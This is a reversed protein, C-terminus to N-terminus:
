EKATDILTGWEYLCALSPNRGKLQLGGVGGRFAEPVDLGIALKLYFASAFAGADVEDLTDSMLVTYRVLGSIEAAASASNCSSFVACEIASAFRPLASLINAISLRDHAGEAEVVIEGARSGHGSFHFFRPNHQIAAATLRDSTLAPEAHLELLCKERLSDLATRVKQFERDAGIGRNPLLPDAWSFLLVDRHTPRSRLTSRKAALRGELVEQLGDRFSILFGGGHARELALVRDLVRAEPDVGSASFANALAGRVERDTIRLGEQGEEFLGIAKWYTLANQETDVAAGVIDNHLDRLLSLPEFNLVSLLASEERLKPVFVGVRHLVEAFLGLHGVSRESILSGFNTRTPTTEISDLTISMLQSYMDAHARRLEHRVTYLLPNSDVDEQLAPWVFDYGRQEALLVSAAVAREAEDATRGRSLIEGVSGQEQATSSRSWMERLMLSIDVNDRTAILGLADLAAGRRKVVQSDAYASFTSPSKSIKGLGHDTYSSYEANIYFMALATQSAWLGPFRTLLSRTSSSEYFYSAALLVHDGLLVSVIFSDTVDMENLGYAIQTPRNGATFFLKRGESKRLPIRM